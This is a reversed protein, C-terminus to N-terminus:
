NPIYWELIILMWPNKELVFESFIYFAFNGMYAAKQYKQVRSKRPVVYRQGCTGRNWSYLFYKRWNRNLVASLVLALLRPKICPWFCPGSTGELHWQYLIKLACRFSSEFISILHCNFQQFPMCAQYYHGGTM